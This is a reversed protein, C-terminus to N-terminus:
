KIAHVVFQDINSCPAPNRLAPSIFKPPVLYGKEVLRSIMPLYKISTKGTLLHLFDPESEYANLILHFGNLYLYDKTFGGGRYVRATITFAREDSVQYQEKLLLFTNRFSNGRILSRVALVRLAMTKLRGITMCGSLYECLLALGEQTMTNAPCGVSLIKLPQIRANLTTVLHVGLEHHALAVAEKKNLRAASNLKVKTGAVLANAIMSDDMVLQYQYGETEAFQELLVRLAEADYLVEEETEDSDPLHLIFHANAIDKASPEGYYRLSDYFFDTSGISKYQDVKDAYSDIIDSYLTRLDDDLLEDVPLNYLNRKFAFPYVDQKRYTFKPDRSYHSSFFEKQQEKYNLPGIADLIDIYSVLRHLNDDIMSVQPDIKKVM